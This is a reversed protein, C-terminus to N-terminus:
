DPLNLGEITSVLVERLSDQDVNATNLRDGVFDMSSGWFVSSTIAELAAYSALGYFFGRWVDFKKKQSLYEGGFGAGMGVAFKLFVTVYVGKASLQLFEGTGLIPVVANDFTELAHQLIASETIDPLYVGIQDGAWDLSDRVITNLIEKWPMFQYAAAATGAVATGTYTKWGWDNFPWM